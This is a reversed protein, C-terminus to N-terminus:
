QFIDKMDHHRRIPIFIVALMPSVSRLLSLDAVEVENDVFGRSLRWPLAAITSILLNTLARSGKPFSVAGKM